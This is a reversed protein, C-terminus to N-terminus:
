LSGNSSHWISPTFTQWNRVSTWNESEVQPLSDPRLYANTITTSGNSLSIHGYISETTGHVTTSPFSATGNRALNNAFANEWNPNTACGVGWIEGGYRMWCRPPGEQKSAHAYTNLSNNGIGAAAAVTGIDTANFPLPSQTHGRLIGDGYHHGALILLGIPTKGKAARNMIRTAADQGSTWFVSINLVKQTAALFGTEWDPNLQQTDTYVPTFAPMMRLSNDTGHTRLNSVNARACKKAIPYNVWGNNQQPKGLTQPWICVWDDSKGSIQIALGLLTEGDTEAEYINSNSPGVQKWLGLFDLANPLSNYVYRQLNCDGAHFGIPDEYIWRGVRADYWRNINWQLNTVDDTM